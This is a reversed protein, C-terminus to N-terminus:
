QVKAQHKYNRHHSFIFHLQDAEIEQEYQTKSEFLQAAAFHHPLASNVYFCLSICWFAEMQQVVLFISDDRERTFFLKRLM